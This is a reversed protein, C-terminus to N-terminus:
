AIDGKGEQNITEFDSATAKRILSLGNLSVKDILLTKGVLEPEAVCTIVRVAIGPSFPTGRAVKVSYITETRSEIANELTTSQVLGQIPEGVATLPRTVEFGVTDPAGVTYIQITDVLTAAAM